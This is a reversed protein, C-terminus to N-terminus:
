KKIYKDLATFFDDGDIDKQLEDLKTDRKVAISGLLDAMLALTRNSEPSPPGVTKRFAEALATFDPLPALWYCVAKIAEEEQEAPTLMAWWASFRMAPGFCGYPEVLPDLDNPDNAIM